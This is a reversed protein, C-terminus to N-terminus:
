ICWGEGGWERDKGNAALECMKQGFVDCFRNLKISTRLSCADHELYQLIAYLCLVFHLETESFTRNHSAALELVFHLAIWIRGFTALRNMSKAVFEWAIVDIDISYLRDRHIHLVSLVALHNLRQQSMSNRLYTKLRRLSSFSCEVLFNLPVLVNSTGWGLLQPSKDGGTGTTTAGIGEIQPLGPDVNVKSPVDESESTMCCKSATFFNRWCFFFTFNITSNPM